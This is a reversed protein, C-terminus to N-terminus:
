AGIAAKSQAQTADAYNVDRVQKAIALNTKLQDIAALALKAKNLKSELIGVKKKARKLEASRVIMRDSVAM